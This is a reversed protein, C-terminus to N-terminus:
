HLRWLGRLGMMAWRFNDEIEFRKKMKWLPKMKPLPLNSSGEGKDNTKVKGKRKARGEQDQGFATESTLM